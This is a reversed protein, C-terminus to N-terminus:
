RWWLFPTVCYSNAGANGCLSSGTKPKRKEENSLGPLNPQDPSGNALWPNPEIVLCGNYRAPEETLRENACESQVPQMEGAKWQSLDPRQPGAAAMSSQGHDVAQAISNENSASSGEDACAKAEVPLDSSAVTSASKDDRELGSEKLPDPKKYGVVIGARVVPVGKVAGNALFVDVCPNPIYCTQDAPSIMFVYNPLTGEQIWKKKSERDVNKWACEGGMFTKTEGFGTRPGSRFVLSPPTKNLYGNGLLDQLRIHSTAAALQEATIQPWQIPYVTRVLEPNSAAWLIPAGHNQPAEFDVRQRSSPNEFHGIVFSAVLILCWIPWGTPGTPTSLPRKPSSPPPATPTAFRYCQPCYSGKYLAGSCKSCYPSVSRPRSAPTPSAPQGPPRSCTVAARSNTDRRVEKLLRDYERRMTSDSLVGYAENIEKTKEEAMRKWNASAGPLSDPHVQRVLKRYAVKIEQQTATEAVGLVSYYTEVSM